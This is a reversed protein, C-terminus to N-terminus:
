SELILTKKLEEITLVKYAIKMEVVKNVAAEGESPRVRNESDIDLPIVGEKMAFPHVEVIQSIESNPIAQSLGVEGSKGLFDIKDPRKITIIYNPHNPTPYYSGQVRGAKTAYGDALDPLETFFTLGEHGGINQVADGRTKIQGEKLISTMEEGFIGRYIEGERQTIPLTTQYGSDPKLEVKGDDKIDALKEDIFTKGKEVLGETIKPKINVQLGGGDKKQCNLEWRKKEILFKFDDVLSTNSFSPFDEIKYKDSLGPLELKQEVKVKQAPKEDEVLLTQETAKEVIKLVEGPKEETEKFMSQFWNKGKESWEKVKAKVQEVKGVKEGTSKIEAKPAATRIPQISVAEQM